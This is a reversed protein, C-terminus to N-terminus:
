AKFAWIVVKGDNGNTSVWGEGARLGTIAGQHKKWDGETEVPTSQGMNVKAAFLARANGFSSGAKAASSGGEAQKDLGGAETWAGGSKKLVDVNASHGATVIADEGVFVIRMAPLGSTKVTQLVPAAAAAPHFAVVHVLGDHGVFALQQGSKSWSCDNIWAKTEEFEVISEGFDPLNGGFQAVSGGEGDVEEIVASVVRCRYDTSATALVLGSPHWSLAVVSSKARKAPRSVWWDNAADYWCVMCSKNGSAVAFKKGDPSWKVDLNARNTRLLVVTPKWQGKSDQSWVFANRDHSCTVIKNTVPHWDIASVLLDHEKLIHDRSWKSTDADKCGSFIWVENSNPCLALM